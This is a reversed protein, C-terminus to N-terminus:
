ASVEGQITESVPLPVKAEVFVVRVDGGDPFDSLAWESMDEDSAQRKPGHGNGVATWKGDSGVAVAMRVRVTKM